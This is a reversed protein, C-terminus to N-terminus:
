RSLDTPIQATLETLRFRWLPPTQTEQATMLWQRNIPGTGSDILERLEQIMLPHSGYYSHGLLSTDIPSVDIVDIGLVTPQPSSTLGLRRYGHIKMSALLARDGSSAYLTARTACAAVSSAYRKLFDDTDVDPAAMVVQAFLPQKDPLRLAIRELAGMLARNGMSHAVLHLKKIGTRQRLDLLFRELHTVSWAVNSEDQSYSLLKGSSPWSYLIPPGQLKVDAAIQATRRMADDFAVNYGHIFVMASNSKEQALVADIGTFFEDPDMRDIRQISVHRDAQESFELKFISPTPLEGKNRNAPLSVESIGLQLPYDTDASEYRQSSFWVSGRSAMRYLQASQVSAQQILFCTVLGVATFATWWLWRRRQAYLSQLLLIGCIALSLGAPIITKAWLHLDSARVLARDTAFFVNISSPQSEALTSELKAVDSITRHEFSVSDKKVAIYPEFPAISTVTLAPQPTAAAGPLEPSASESTATAAVPSKMSSMMQPVTIAGGIVTALGVIITQAAVKGFRMSRRYTKPKM